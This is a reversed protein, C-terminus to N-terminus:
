KLFGTSISSRTVPGGATLLSGHQSHTLLCKTLERGAVGKMIGPVKMSLMESLGVVGQHPPYDYLGKHIFVSIKSLFTVKGLDCLWCISSCPNSGLVSPELGQSSGM